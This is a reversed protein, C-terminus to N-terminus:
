YHKSSISVTPLEKPPKQHLGGMYIVSPPVPRIGEFIPNVNLFLMDVNNELDEVPPIEPGFHKRLVKNELIENNEYVKEIRYQNYLESIKEWISLNYLRQRLVSPYLIPHDAAGILDYNGPAAGLSSVLIVPVNKFVYSFALAPRVCAELFLLDFKKNKDNIIKQVEESQIQADLIAVFTPLIINIQSLLDDKSGKSAAKMFNEEWINYSVDHVDIETLNPPAGGKKFAPDPTIVTVEHGRKALEQTLPRFVVQHSISPVPFVALIRAADNSSIFLVACAVLYIVSM